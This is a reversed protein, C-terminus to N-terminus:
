RLRAKRVYMEFPCLKTLKFLKENSIEDRNKGIIARLRKTHFVNLKAYDKDTCTWAEAGYLITSMVVARYIQVKTKLSIERRSWM